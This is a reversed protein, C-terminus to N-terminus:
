KKGKWASNVERTRKVHKCFMDSWLSYGYLYTDKCM